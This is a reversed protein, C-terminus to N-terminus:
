GGGIAISSTRWASEEGDAARRVLDNIADDNGTTM